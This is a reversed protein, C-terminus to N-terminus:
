WLEKGVPEGWNVEASAKLPRGSLEIYEELTRHRFESSSLDKLQEDYQKELIDM